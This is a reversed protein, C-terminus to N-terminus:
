ICAQVGVSPVWFLSTIRRQFWLFHLGMCRAATGVRVRGPAMSEQSFSYFRAAPRGALWPAGPVKFEILWCSIFLWRWSDCSSSNNVHGNNRDIACGCEHSDRQREAKQKTPNDPEFGASFIPPDTLLGPIATNKKVGGVITAHHNPFIILCSLWLANDFIWLCM